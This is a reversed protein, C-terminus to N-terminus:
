MEVGVGLFVVMLLHGCLRTSGRALCVERHSVPTSHFLTAGPPQFKLYSNLELQDLQPWGCQSKEVSGPKEESYHLERVQHEGLGLLLFLNWCVSVALYLGHLPFAAPIVTM